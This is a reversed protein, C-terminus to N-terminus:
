FGAVRLTRGRFAGALGHGDPWLLVGELFDPWLPEPSDEGLLFAVLVAIILDHTVYLDIRGPLPQRAMVARLLLPCGEAVSRLGPLATGHLQLRALGQAGHQVFLPWAAEGDIVFPGPAGLLPDAEPTEERQAGRLIAHATQRCRLVGSTRVAGLRARISAGLAEAQAHGEATLPTEDGPQGIPLEGRRGHRLLLVAGHEPSRAALDALDALLSAPPANM